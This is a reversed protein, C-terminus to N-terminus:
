MPVDADDIRNPTDFLTFQPYFVLDVIGTPGNRNKAIILKSEIGNGEAVAKKAEDSDTERDRHLLAVVDADQEIAGSERLNSIKPQGTAEAARNLQALVIVPINLERALAKIDSSMRAVEQERSANKNVGVARMLQLYDIALLKIDHDSAMRRAKQRLEMSTIQPTDDILIKMSSLRHCAEMLDGQWQAPTLKGDRVSRIDIKAESCIMRVVVQQAGMELSFFGVAADNLLASNRLINMALTTKGISPRAALVIMEGPKLGTILDDLFTFGTKMGMMSPDRKTLKDLYDFAEPLVERLIRTENDSQMKTISLVNKEIEDVLDVVEEDAEFCRGVIDSCTSIMRRLIHNNQVIAIYNDVNAISPVRNFVTRLFDVGGIEELAGKRELRDSIAIIDIQGAPMELRMERLCEFLRRHAPVYICEASDLRGFVSDM